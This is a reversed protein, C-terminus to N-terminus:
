ARGEGASALQFDRQEADRMRERMGQRADDLGDGDRVVALRQARGIDKRECSPCHVPVFFEPIQAQVARLPGGGNIRECASLFEESLLFQTFTAGCECTRARTIAEGAKPGTAHTSFWPSRVRTLPRDTPRTPTTM